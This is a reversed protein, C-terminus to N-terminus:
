HPAERPYATLYVIFFLKQKGMDILKKCQRAFNEMFEINQTGDSKALTNSGIKIVIKRSNKLAESISKEM